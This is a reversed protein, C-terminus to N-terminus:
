LNERSDVFLQQDAFVSVAFLYRHSVVLHEGSQHVLEPQEISDQRRLLDRCHRRLFGCGNRVFRDGQFVDQGSIGVFGLVVATGVLVPHVLGM